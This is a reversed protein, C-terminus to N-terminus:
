SPQQRQKYMPSYLSADRSNVLSFDWISTVLFIATMPPPITPSAVACRSSSRYGDM